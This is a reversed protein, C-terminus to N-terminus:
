EVCVGGVVIAIGTIESEPIDFPPYEKNDSVANLCGEKEGKFLKKLLIGQERTAIVYTKGWQIFDRNNILRCAVLDGNRYTPYMSSGSVPLMFDIKLGKFIPIKCYDEIDQQNISFGGGGFGAVASISAIPILDSEIKVSFDTIREAIIRDEKVESKLMSGKGTLLWEPNIEPYCTLIKVIKEGGIESKLGNGKFNSASIETKRYFEEKVIHQKEIFQLINEKVTLIKGM